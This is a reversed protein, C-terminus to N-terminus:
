DRGRKRALFARVDPLRRTNLVHRSEVWGRRATGVGMRMQRDLASSRHCDSDVVLTVGARVAAGAREGDLDLHSPAGDVELATGTEAAAAYIADFDMDYGDRRGVLQNAPHTIVSVLPHRIAGLCRKTLRRGDHGDRDHLSALVIDLTALVADPCDLSGNPLIDAELGHLIAMGPVEERLREIEERQRVMDDLTLTRSAGAHESHDTIAIYEYGLARAAHVMHRLSDRGDSYNTHMHLDGRVDERGILAPVDRSEARAMADADHRTEPPLYALGAHTYVDSESASFRGGRRKLVEVVHPAPGTTTFLITGFEDPACLRVDVEYGEFFLLARRASKHLVETVHPLACVDLIARMPDAARGVVIIGQVLPETRRVGGSAELGQVAPCHQAIEAILSHAVDWARGLVIPRQEAGIVPAARSFLPGAVAPRQEALALDLDALTVIGDHELAAEAEADVVRLERLRRLLLPRATL